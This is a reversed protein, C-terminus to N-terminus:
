ASSGLGDLLRAIEAATRAWTFKAAQERGRRIRDLRLTDDGLVKEIESVLGVSDRPDHYGAADGLVEPLAGANAAVVPVGRRMAELPPYGFGETLSPFLFISAHRYWAELAAEDVRGTLLVRGGMGAAREWLRAHDRGPQGVIALTPGTRMQAWADLLVGINKHRETSGVYLAYPAEIPRPYDGEPPPELGPYVVAIRGPDVHLHRSIESRSFDSITVLGDADRVSRSAAWAAYRVFLPEYTGPHTLYNVDLIAVLQPIRGRAAAYGAPMLLADARWGSAAGRIGLEYWWRQLALNIPRFLLGGGVRRPGPARAIELAPVGELADLLGSVWRATGANPRRLVATDVIVRV